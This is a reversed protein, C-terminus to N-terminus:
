FSLVSDALEKQLLKIEEKSLFTVEAIVYESFGKNLMRMAVDRANQEAGKAFGREIGQKLGQKLGQEHGKKIGFREASNVYAMKTTEEFQYIENLCELELHEPLGILWDIFTFLHCVAEKSLGLTYLRRILALKIQKRKENQGKKLEIAALQSLLVSAFPNKSLHLEGKKDQYDIVKIVLFKSKLYSGALGIKFSDPRWKNSKDTLIALSIIPKKYKDFSRYAYKFMREPFIKELKGQIELHILIWQESGDKLHVRYLKDLLQKGSVSGRTITQLEKDLSIWEHNWDILESLAPLCLECFDKLYCDLILKWASDEENRLM